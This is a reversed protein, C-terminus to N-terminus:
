GGAPVEAPGGEPQRPPTADGALSRAVYVAVDDVALQDGLQRSAIGEDFM